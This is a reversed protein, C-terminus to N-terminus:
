PEVRELGPVGEFDKDYSLVQTIGRKLVLETNYADVFNMPSTAHRDLAAQVIDDGSFRLGTSRLLPAVLSRVREPSTRLPPRELFWILEAVVIASTELDVTGQEAAILLDHCANFRQPDYGLFYHIFINTDVFSTM